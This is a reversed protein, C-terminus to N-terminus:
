DNDAGRNAMYPWLYKVITCVKCKCCWGVHTLTGNKRGKGCVKNHQRCGNHGRTNYQHCMVVVMRCNYRGHSSIVDMLLKSRQWVCVPMRSLYAVTYDCSPVAPYSISSAGDMTDYECRAKTGM